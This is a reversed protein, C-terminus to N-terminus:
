GRPRRGRRARPRPRRRRLPRGRRRRARSPRPSASVGGRPATSRPFPPSRSAGVRAVRWARLNRPPSRRAAPPERPPTDVGPARARRARGRAGGHHAARAFEPRQPPRPAPPPPPAPTLLRSFITIAVRTVNRRRICADPLPADGGTLARERRVRHTRPKSAGRAKRADREGAREARRLVRRAARSNRHAADRPTVRAHHRNKQAFRSDVM